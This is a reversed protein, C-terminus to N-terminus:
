SLSCCFRGHCRAWPLRLVPESGLKFRGAVAVTVGDRKWNGDEGGFPLRLRLLFFFRRGWVVGKLTVSYETLGLLLFKSRQQLNYITKVFRHM